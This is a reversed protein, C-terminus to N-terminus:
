DFAGEVVTVEPLEGDVLEVEVVDYRWIFNTEKLMGLWSRGGRKILEQKKKNVADLPRSMERKRRTKVEVFSLVEGDRAVIDVEGGKPGRYNRYLIKRGESKLYSVAISEGLDGIVMNGLAVGDKDILCSRERHLKKFLGRIYGRFRM